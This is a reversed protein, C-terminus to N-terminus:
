HLLAKLADAAGDINKNMADAQFKVVGNSDLISITADHEYDGSQVKKYKIGLTVALKRVAGENGQALVWSPSTISHLKAFETLKAPTDRQPDFTFLAFNVKGAQGVTLSREIRKINQVTLPCVYQCSTYVMAVVTPKGGLKSLQFTKGDAATWNDTINFVSDTSVASLDPTSPATEHGHHHHEHNDAFAPSSCTLILSLLLKSKLNTKM